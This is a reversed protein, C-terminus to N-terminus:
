SERRVDAVLAALEAPSCRAALQALLETVAAPPLAGVDSATLAAAAGPASPRPRDASAAGDRAAGTGRDGEARRGLERALEEVFARVPQPSLFRALPLAVGLERQLHARLKVAHLSEMGNEIWSRELSVARRADGALEAFAAAIAPAIAAGRAAPPLAAIAAADLTAPRPPPVRRPTVPPLEVEGRAVGAGPLAPWAIAGGARYFAGAAELLCALEDERRRLTGLVLPGPEASGRDPELCEAIASALQPHPGLEWLVRCGRATLAAIAAPLDVPQRLNRWWHSADLQLPLRAGSVTSCLPTSPPRPAIGALGALLAEGVPEMEHSHFAGGTRLIRAAVGREALTAHLAAIADRDGALTTSRPSNIAALSVRGQASRALAVADAAPWPVALMQGPREISRQARCWHYIVRAADELTLAGALHAAVIEGMSHGAVAGARIGWSALTAHLGVAVALTALAGHEIEALRSRDAPAALEAGLDWDVYPALARACADIAADFAPAHARLAAGMGPWQAGTGGVIVGVAGEPLPAVEAALAGRFRPPAAADGRPGWLESAPGDERLAALAASLEHRSTVVATLRCAAPAAAARRALEDALARWAAPAPHEALWLEAAHALGLTLSPSEGALPVLIPLERSGISLHNM